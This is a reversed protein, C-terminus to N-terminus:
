SHRRRGWGACACFAILSLCCSSAEPVSRVPSAHVLRSGGFHGTWFELGSVSGDVRQWEFFDAGDVDGDTDFDGPGPFILAGNIVSGIFHSIEGGASILLRLESNVSNHLTIRAVLFDQQDEIVEGGDPFFSQNIRGTSFEASENAGLDVAGGGPRPEGFLSPQGAGDLVPSGQALFTDFALSPLAIIDEPNPPTVVASSNEQFIDGVTLGEVLIQAGTYQGEFSILIDNTVFGDLAAGGPSNDVQVVRVQSSDSTTPPSGSGFNAGWNVVVVDLSQQEIIGSPVDGVWGEPFPPVVDGWNLLVLDLDIQSVTGDGNYDGEILPPIALAASSCFATLAFACISAVPRRNM